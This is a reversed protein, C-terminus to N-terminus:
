RLVWILPAAADKPLGLLLGTFFVPGVWANVTFFAAPVSQVGGRRVMRQQAVMLGGVALWGAWYGVGLGAGWGIVAWASGALVFLLASIRLTVRAGFRAPFSHLGAGRDHDEDQLAYLLDFGTVWAVVGAGIVLPLSWGAHFDKAIALWAGAPACALAAGLGLHCAWTFRKLMSYGLLLALVPFAFWGCIPALWFAAAVFVGASIVTFLATFSASLKGSPLERAATRPNVSDLRRDVLRNFAMAASRAAVAAVVIMALDALPPVGAAALWAGALAFPLAFVSHEFRIMRLTVAIRSV